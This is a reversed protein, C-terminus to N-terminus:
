EVANKFVRGEKMVFVLERLVSINELVNGQVAILDADMGPNLQGKHDAIGLHEATDRTAIRLVEAEDIGIKVLWELESVNNGHPIVGADSGVALRVGAKFARAVNEPHEKRYLELRERFAAPVSDMREAIMDQVDLTPVLVADNKRFLRISERDLFSGHEISDVGARLAANIGATAHAHATVKLDLSHATEVIGRFEDELFSPQHHKGGTRENGGGTAHLKILDAGQRFQRRVARRCEAEGDCLGSSSLQELVRDPADLFDGHGGTPSISSGAALIRPGPVDGANIANRLVIIPWSDAGADLDAVTTFGADLTLRANVIGSILREEASLSPDRFQGGHRHLLHVHADILGPLVHHNRLNITRAASENVGLQHATQYGEVLREIRDNRIVLTQETLPESSTDALVVGAHIIVVGNEPGASEEVPFAPGSFVLMVLLFFGTRLSDLISTM